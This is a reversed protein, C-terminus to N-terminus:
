RLPETLRISVPGPQDVEGLTRTGTGDCEVNQKPKPPTSKSEPAWGRSQSLGPNSEERRGAASITASGVSAREARGICGFRMTSVRRGRASAAIGAAGESGAASVSLARSMPIFFQPVVTVRRRARQSSLSRGAKRLLDAGNPPATSYSKPFCREPQTSTSTAPSGPSRTQMNPRSQCRRAAPRARALVLNM